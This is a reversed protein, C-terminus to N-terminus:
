WSITFYFKVFGKHIVLVISSHFYSNRIVRFDTLWVGASLTWSWDDIYIYLYSRWIERSNNNHNNLNDNKDAFPFFSKKKSNKWTESLKSCSNISKKRSWIAQFPHNVCFFVYTAKKGSTFIIGAKKKLKGPKKSLIDQSGLGSEQLRFLLFSITQM